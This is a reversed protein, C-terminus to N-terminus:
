KLYSMLIPKYKAALAEVTYQNGTLKAQAKLKRSSPKIDRAKKIQVVADEISPDGWWSTECDPYDGEKVDRRSWKVPLSNTENLFDAPGSFHSSV